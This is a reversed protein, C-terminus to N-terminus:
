LYQFISKEEYFWEGLSDIINTIKEEILPNSLKIEKIEKLENKVKQLEDLVGNFDKSNANTLEAIKTTLLAIVEYLNNIKVDVQTEKSFLWNKVFGLVAVVIGSSGSTLLVSPVNISLAEQMETPLLMYVGGLVAILGFIIILVNFIWKKM